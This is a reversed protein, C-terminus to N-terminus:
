KDGIRKLNNKLIKSKIIEEANNIEDYRIEVLHINNKICYNRKIDDRKQRIEFYKEGGFYAVPVYHQKGQFEICTNYNPLYFDFRLAKEYKCDQFTFQRKFDIDLKQLIQGIEFEGSSILCGCSQTNGSTLSASRVVIQNGCDCICNWCVCEGVNDARSLVLLKGFKQGTLDVAKACGCSIQKGRKLNEGCVSVINGCDCRCNWYADKAGNIDRSIVTLSGYRNGILNHIKNKGFSVRYCGCSKVRNETLHNGRVIIENGCECICNWQPKHQGSPSIYDDAQEIVKLKGFSKGTLDIKTKVM